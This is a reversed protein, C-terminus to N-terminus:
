QKQNKRNNSNHRNKRNKEKQVKQEKQFWEWAVIKGDVVCLEEYTGYTGQQYADFFTNFPVRVLFTYENPESDPHQKCWETFMNIGANLSDSIAVVQKDGNWVFYATM